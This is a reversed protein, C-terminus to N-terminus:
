VTYSSKNKNDTVIVNITEYDSAKSSYIYTYTDFYMNIGLAQCYDWTLPLYTINNYNLFPYQAYSSQIEQNNICIKYTPLKVSINNSPTEPLYYTYAVNSSSVSTKYPCIGNPHLHPPNGGCHYHYYGLGSVNKNDRHGGSADTRGSHAFSCTFMLCFALSLSIIKKKMKNIGKGQKLLLMLLLWLCM